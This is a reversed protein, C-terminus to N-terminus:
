AMHGMPAACTLAKVSVSDIAFGVNGSAGHSAIQLTDNAGGVVNATFSHFANYDIVGHADTFDAMTVEKVVNGGFMFDLKESSSTTLNAAIIDEAAVSFTMQAHEGASLALVQSIDIPGPSGQTDLWHGDGGIGSYGASVVELKASDAATTWGPLNDFAAYAGGSTTQDVEFSGNNVLEPGTPQAVYATATSYTGNAMRITYEFQSVGSGIALSGDPNLTVGSGLGVFTASGPDNALLDNVSYHGSIGSALCDDKAANNVLASQSTQTQAPNPKTV